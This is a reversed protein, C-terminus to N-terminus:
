RAVEREVRVAFASGRAPTVRAIATRDGDQIVARVPKGHADLALELTREHPAASASFGVFTACTVYVKRPTYIGLTIASIFGTAFNGGTKVEAPATKGCFEHVDFSETGVLGFIFFDTWTDHEEGRVMTKNEYFTAKYCGVLLLSAALSFRVWTSAKM